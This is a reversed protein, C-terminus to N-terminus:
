YSGKSSQNISDTNYVCVSERESERVSAREIHPLPIGVPLSRDCSVCHLADTRRHSLQFLLEMHATNKKTTLGLLIINRIYFVIGWFSSIIKSPVMTDGFLISGM